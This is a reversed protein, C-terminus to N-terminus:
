QLTLVYAAIKQMDDMTLSPNGGSPPMEVGRENLPHNIPRGEMFFEALEDQSLSQVYENNHLDKGLQPMGHADRGHCAACTGVFLERGQAVEPSVDEAAGGGCAVTLSLFAVVALLRGVTMMLRREQM